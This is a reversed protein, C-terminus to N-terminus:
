VSPSVQNLCSTEFHQYNHKKALLIGEVAQTRLQGHFVLKMLALRTVLHILIIDAGANQKQPKKGGGFAGRRGESIAVLRM